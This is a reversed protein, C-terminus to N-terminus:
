GSINKGVKYSWHSLDRGLIMELEKIEDEYRAYLEKKIADEMPPYEIEKLLADKTIWRRLNQPIIKKIYLSIKTKKLKKFLNHIGEDRPVASKNSTMPNLDYQDDIELFHLLGAMVHKFNKHLDEQLLFFFRERPFLELYPKLLSAYCGGRFYGYKPNGDYQLQQWNDQLRKDETQIADTFSVVKPDEHNMRVRHWYNSYARKVPDRFIAAFRIPRDKYLEQIRPAVKESWTLYAPTAEMRVPFGLSESFYTNQYWEVGNEFRDEHTFFGIEKRPSAYVSPHQSLVDFLSTTGSKAAGIILFNPLLDFNM